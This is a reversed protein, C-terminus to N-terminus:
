DVLDSEIQQLSRWGMLLLPISFLLFYYGYSGKWQLTLTGNKAFLILVVGFLLAISGAMLFFLPFFDRKFSSLSPSPAINNSLPLSEVTCREEELQNEAVAYLPAPVESEEKPPHYTPNWSTDEDWEAGQVYVGCYPCNDVEYSINGDCNWCLKKKPIASM